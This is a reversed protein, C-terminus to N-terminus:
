KKNQNIEWIKKHKNLLQIKWRIMHYYCKSNKHFDQFSDYKNMEEICNKKTWVMIDKKMHKTFEKICKMKILKRYLNHEKTRFDMYNNYKKTIDGIKDYDLINKNIFDYIDDDLIEYIENECINNKTYNNIDNLYLIFQHKIKLIYNKYYTEDEIFRFLKINNKICLKDKLNDIEKKNRHWYIGDFEFALKLKPIYIDLGYPSITKRTNYLITYNNFFKNIIFKLILEPRSINQQIMHSCIKDIVGNKRAIEFASPDSKKFDYKTKYNKAIIILSNLSLDRHREKRIKSLHEKSKYLNLKASKKRTANISKGIIKSVYKTTNNPYLEILKNIQDQSWKM